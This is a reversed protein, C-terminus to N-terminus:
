CITCHCSMEKRKTREPENSMANIMNMIDGYELRLSFGVSRLIVKSNTWITMACDSCSTCNKLKKPSNMIFLSFKTNENNVIKAKRQAINKVILFGSGNRRFVEEWLILYDQSEKLFQEAVIIEGLTIPIDASRSIISPTEALELLFNYFL